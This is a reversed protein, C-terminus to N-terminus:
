LSTSVSDIKKQMGTLLDEVKVHLFKWTQLKQQYQQRLIMKWQDINAGTMRTLRSM